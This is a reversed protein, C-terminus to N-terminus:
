AFLDDGRVPVHKGLLRVAGDRVVAWVADAAYLSGDHALSYGMVAADGIVFELLEEEALAFRPERRIQESGFYMTMFSRDIRLEVYRETPLACRGTSDFLVDEGALIGIVCRSEGFIGPCHMTSRISVSTDSFIGDHPDRSVALFLEGRKGRLLQRLKSIRAAYFSQVNSVDNM